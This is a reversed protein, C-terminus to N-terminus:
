RHLIRSWRPHSAAVATNTRRLPSIRASSCRAPKPRILRAARANPHVPPLNPSRAGSCAADLLTHGGRLLAGARSDVAVARVKRDGDPSPQFGPLFAARNRILEDAPRTVAEGGFLSTFDTTIEDSMASRVRHWDHRDAGAAIDTITEVIEVHLEPEAAGAATAMLLGALTPALLKKM